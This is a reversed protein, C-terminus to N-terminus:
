SCSPMQSSLTIDQEDIAIAWRHEGAGPDLYPRPTSTTVAKLQFRVALGKKDPIQKQFVKVEPNTAWRTKKTSLVQTPVQRVNDDVDEQKMPAHREGGGPTLPAGGGVPTGPM